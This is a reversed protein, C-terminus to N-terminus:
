ANTAEALARKVIDPEREIVTLYALLASDPKTRGQELDRLRGVNIRYRAAFRQQSLGTHRRIAQVRRAAAVRALEEDTLPPNDPDSLAAATIEAETMADLRALAEPSMRPPNGPDLTFRAMYRVKRGFQRPPRIYDASFRSRAAYVLTFLRGEIVGITKRRMERDQTHSADVDLRNADLFLNTAYVFEIGHKARNSSAKADDWVFILCDPM